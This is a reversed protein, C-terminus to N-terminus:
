SCAYQVPSYMIRVLVSAHGLRSFHFIVSEQATSLIKQHRKVYTYDNCLAFHLNRVRHIAVQDAAM